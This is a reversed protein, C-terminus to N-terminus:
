RWSSVAVLVLSLVGICLAILVGLRVKESTRHRIGQAGIAFVVGPFCLEKLEVVCWISLALGLDFVILRLLVVNAWIPRWESAISFFFAIYICALVFTLFSCSGWFVLPWHRPQMTKIKAIFSNKLGDLFLKDGVLRLCVSARTHGALFIEASERRTANTAVLQLLVIKGGNTNEYAILEEVNTFQRTSGDACQASATVEGVQKSVFEWITRLGDPQLVLSQDISLLARVVVSECLGGTLQKTLM